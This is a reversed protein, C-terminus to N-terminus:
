FVNSFSLAHIIGGERQLVVSIGLLLIMGWGSEIRRNHSRVGDSCILRCKVVEMGKGAVGIILARPFM